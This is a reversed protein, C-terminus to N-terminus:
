LFRERPAVDEHRVVFDIMRITQYKERADSKQLNLALVIFSCQLDPELLDWLSSVARSNHQDPKRRM